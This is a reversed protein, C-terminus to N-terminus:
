SASGLALILDVVREPQGRRVVELGIGGPVSVLYCGSRQGVTVTIDRRGRSSIVALEPPRREIVSSVSIQDPWPIERDAILELSVTNHRHARIGRQQLLRQVVALARDQTEATAEDVATPIPRSNSM